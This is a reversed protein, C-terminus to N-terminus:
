FTANLERLEKLEELQERYWGFTHEGDSIESTDRMSAILTNLAKAESSLPTENQNPKKVSSCTICLGDGRSFRQFIGCKKCTM